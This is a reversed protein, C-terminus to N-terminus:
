TKKEAFGSLRLSVNVLAAFEDEPQKASWARWGAETMLPQKDALVVTLTLLRIAFDGQSLGKQLRLDLRQGADLGQVVVGVAGDGQLGFVEVTEAPLTPISFKGRELLM